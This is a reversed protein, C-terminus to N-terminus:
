LLFIIASFSFFGPGEISSIGMPWPVLSLTILSSFDGRSEEM